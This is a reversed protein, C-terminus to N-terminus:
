PESNKFRILFSSKKWFLLTEVLFPILAIGYGLLLLYAFHLIENTIKQNSPLIDTSWIRGLVYQDYKQKGRFYTIIGMKFHREAIRDM